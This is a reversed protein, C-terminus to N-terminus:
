PKGMVLIDERKSDIYLHNLSGKNSIVGIRYSYGKKKTGKSKIVSPIFM